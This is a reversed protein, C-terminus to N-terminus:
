KAFRFHGHQRSFQPMEPTFLPKFIPVNNFDDTVVIFFTSMHVVNESDQKNQSLSAM